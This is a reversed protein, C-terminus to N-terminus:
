LDTQHKLHELIRQHVSHLSEGLAASVTHNAISRYLTERHEHLKRIKEERNGEQLFPRNRDYQLRKILQELPPKLYIVYGHTQLLRRNEEKLIIGGGTALVIRQKQVLEELTHQERWRFGAEGEIDFITSVSAGTRREIEHDSDIFQYHLSHALVKGISTKGAGMLGILFINTNM